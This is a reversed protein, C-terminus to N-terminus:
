PAGAKIFVDLKQGAYVRPPTGLVRYVVFLVRTDVRETTAGTISVKPVVRPEIRVFELDIRTRDRSRVFGEAAAGPEVRTADEEDVQVRVEFDGERALTVPSRHTDGPQVYEGERVDVRLVTADAPARVTLRDIEVELQEAESRALDREREAVTIDPGWTGAELRLLHAGAELLEAEAVRVAFSRARLEEVSMAGESSLSEGRSLLERAREVAVRAADRRALAPPIDEPRTGARLKDLRAEAAALASLSVALQARLSRDDVAFLPDGEKVRHGTAVHVRRVVGAIPAGVSVAEGPSQIEGLGAVTEPGLTTSAPPNPATTLQEEPKLIVTTAAGFGVAGAALIPIGLKVLM